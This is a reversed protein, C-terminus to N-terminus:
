RTIRRRGREQAPAQRAARRHDAPPPGRARRGQARLRGPMTWTVAADPGQITNTGGGGDISGALGGGAQLTFTDAGAGGNLDEINTLGDAVLVQGGSALSGADLGSITWAAGADLGQITNTGGGGDISGIPAAGLGFAFTDAGSGGVLNAFGIFALSQGDSTYQDTAGLQWSASANLGTLTSGVAGILANIDSFGGAISAESGAFGDLSGLGTLTVARPSGYASGDIIETGGGGGVTGALSGGAQFTFTDAGSGGILDQISSFGTTVPGTGTSSLTGSGAGTITWDMAADPGRLTNTGGGGDLGGSLSGGVLFRFRDDGSGGMLYGVHPFGGTVLVRRSSTISGADPGTIRWNTPADPGQITNTGGGGDIAGSLSGAAQFTFTDAGSGGTLNQINTFGLPDPM